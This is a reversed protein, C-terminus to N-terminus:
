KQYLIKQFLLLYWLTGTVLAMLASFYLGLTLYVFALSYMGVFTIVGTQVVIVGQKKKFGEYVQPVLAYGFLLILVAIVIDQWVM